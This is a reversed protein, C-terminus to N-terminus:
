YGAQQSDKGTTAEKFAKATIEEVFSDAAVRDAAKGSKLELYGVRIRDGQYKEFYPVFRVNEGKGDLFKLGAKLSRFYRSGSARSTSEQVSQNVPANTVEQTPQTSDAM